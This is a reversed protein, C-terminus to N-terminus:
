AWHIYLFDRYDSHTDFNACIKNYVFIVKNLNVQVNSYKLNKSGLANPM